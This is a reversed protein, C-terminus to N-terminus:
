WTNPKLETLAYGCFPCSSILLMDSKIISEISDAMGGDHQKAYWTCDLVWSWEEQNIKQYQIVVNDYFNEKCRHVVEEEKPINM